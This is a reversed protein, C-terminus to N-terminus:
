YGLKKKEEALEREKRAIEAEKEKREAKHEYWFDMAKKFAHGLGKTNASLPQPVGVMRIKTPNKFLNLTPQRTKMEVAMDVARRFDKNSLYLQKCIQKPEDMLVVNSPTLFGM